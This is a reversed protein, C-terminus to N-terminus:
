VYYRNFLIIETVILVLIVYITSLINFYKIKINKVELALLLLLGAPIFYRGQVGEAISNGVVNYTVYLATIILVITGLFLFLLLVRNKLSFSKDENNVISTIILIVLYSYIISDPINTDLWGLIGIFSKLYFNGHLIMTRIFTEIFFVPNKLIFIVQDKPSANSNTSLVNGAGSIKMWFINILISLFISAFGLILYQKKNKFREKPILFYLLSFLFYVQKTLSILAVLLFMMIIEKNKLKENNDKFLKIFYSITFIALCNIVGDAALSSAEYLLMPMLGFVFLLNKKGPINKISFYIIVTSFILNFLRGLYMLLLPSLNLERGIKIGISQPLYVIPSYASTNPIAIFIKEEPKLPTNFSSLIDKVNFKKESHFPIQQSNKIINTEVLSKPVYAGNENNYHECVLKGDSIQYARYFHTYEDPAQFPGNIFVFAIGFLLSLIVYIHELKINYNKLNLNLM